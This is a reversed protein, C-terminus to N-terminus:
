DPSASVLPLIELHPSLYNVFHAPVPSFFGNSAADSVLQPTNKM